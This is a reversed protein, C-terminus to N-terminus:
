RGDSNDDQMARTAQTAVIIALSTRRWRRGDHLEIEIPGDQEYQSAYNCIENLARDAPGEVGAVVGGDQKIRFRLTTTHDSM